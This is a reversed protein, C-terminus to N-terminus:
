SRANTPERKEETYEHLGGIPIDFIQLGMWAVELEHKAKQDYRHWGCGLCWLEYQSTYDPSSKDIQGNLEHGCAPCYLQAMIYSPM